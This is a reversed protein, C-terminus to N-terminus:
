KSSQHGGYGPCNRRWHGPKQCAFCLDSTKPGSSSFRNYNQARFNGVNSSPAYQAQRGGSGYRQYPKSGPRFRSSSKTSAKKKAASARAQAKRIKKDDESDSALDDVLYEEVAKWGADSKDAIQVLKNRFTLDKLAKELIPIAATSCGSSLLKLSQEVLDIIASNFTEQESNGKSKLEKKRTKLKELDQSSSEIRSKQNELEKDFHSKVGGVAKGVASSVTQNIIAILSETSLSLGESSGTQVGSGTQLGSGSPKDSSM